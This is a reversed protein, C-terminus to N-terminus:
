IQCQIIEGLYQVKTFLHIDCAPYHTTSNKPQKPALILGIIKRVLFSWGAVLHGIWRSPQMMSWAEYNRHPTIPSDKSTWYLEHASSTHVFVFNVCICDWVTPHMSAMDWLVCTPYMSSKSQHKHFCGAKEHEWSKCFLKGNNKCCISRCIQIQSPASIM